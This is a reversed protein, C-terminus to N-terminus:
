RTVGGLRRGRTPAAMAWISPACAKQRDRYRRNYASEGLPKPKRPEVAPAPGLAWLARVYLRGGDEDRRWGSIHVKKGRMLALRSSVHTLKIGLDDALERTTMPGHESLYLLIRQAVSLETM